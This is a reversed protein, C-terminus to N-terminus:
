ARRCATPWISTSPLARPRPTLGTPASSIPPEEGRADVVGSVLNVAYIAQLDIREPALFAQVLAFQDDIENYTDSDIVVRLRGARPALMALRQSETIQM